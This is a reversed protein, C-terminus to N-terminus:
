PLEHKQKDKLARIADVLNDVDDIKGQHRWTAYEKVFQACEEIIAARALAMEHEVEDDTWLAARLREIEAAYRDLIAQAVQYRQRFATAM